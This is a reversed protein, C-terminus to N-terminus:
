NCIESIFKILESFIRQHDPSNLISHDNNELWIKRKNKSNIRNFIEDMSNPKIDSDLRGQLLLAPCEIKLLVKKMEKLLVKVKTAINLSMKKYGVWKGNTEKELKHWKIPYYKIFIKFFPIFKVVLRKIGFPASITFIGDFSYKSAFILTLVGGMSHGGVVIKKCKQNLPDIEYEITRKWENITINKLVEPTTGYGPLLPVYVTYGLTKHLEEALPKLDACTGGGGGHIMLVGINNGEFYFPGSGPLIKLDDNNIKEIM